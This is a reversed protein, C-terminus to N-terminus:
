VRPPVKASAIERGKNSKRKKERENRRCDDISEGEKRREDERKRIWALYQVSVKTM